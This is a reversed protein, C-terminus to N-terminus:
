VVSTRDKLKGILYKSISRSYSPIIPHVSASGSPGYIDGAGVYTKKARQKYEQYLDWANKQTIIGNHNNDMKKIENIIREMEGRAAASSETGKSLKKREIKLSDLLPKIEVRPSDDNLDSIFNDIKANAHDKEYKIDSSISDRLKNSSTLPNEASENRLNQVEQYRNRFVEMNKKPIGSIVTQANTAAEEPIKSLFGVDKTINSPIKGIFGGVKSVGRGVLGPVSLSTPMAGETLAGAVGSGTMEPDYDSGEHMQAQNPNKSYLLGLGPVQSPHFKSQFMGAKDYIDKMSPAGPEGLQDWAAGPAGSFNGEQMKSIAARAPAFTYEDIKNTIPAMMKAATGVGSVISEMGTKNGDSMKQQIAENLEDDSMNEPRKLPAVSGSPTPSAQSAMKQNMAQDLQDDTMNDYNVSAM